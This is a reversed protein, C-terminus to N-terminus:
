FDDNNMRARGVERKRWTPGRMGRAGSRRGEGVILQTGRTLAVATSGREGAGRRQGGPGATARDWRDAARAWTVWM